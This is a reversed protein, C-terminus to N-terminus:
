HPLNCGSRSIISDPYYRYCYPGTDVIKIKESKGKLYDDVNTYNYIHVCILPKVPPSKWAEYVESGDRLVMQQLCFVTNLNSLASPDDTLYNHTMLLLRKVREPRRPRFVLRTNKINNYKLIQNLNVINAYGRVHYIFRYQLSFLILTKRYM